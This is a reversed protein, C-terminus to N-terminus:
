PSAPPRHELASSMREGRHQLLFHQFSADMAGTRSWLYPFHGYWLSLQRGSEAASRSAIGYEFIAAALGSRDAGRKCHILVPRPAEELLAVLQQLQKATLEKNASLPLEYRTLKYEASVALENRYWAEQPAPRVLSVISKIHHLKVISELDSRSLEASRYALGPEITHVNGTLQLGGLYTGVGALPVFIAGIMIAVIRPHRFRGRKLGSEVGRTRFGFTM